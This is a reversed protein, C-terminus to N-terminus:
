ASNFQDGFHDGSNVSGDAMYRIAQNGDDWGCQSKYLWAETDLLPQNWPGRLYWLRQPELRKNINTYYKGQRKYKTRGGKSSFPSGRQTGQTRQWHAPATKHLNSLMLFKHPLFHDGWGIGGGDQCQLFFFLLSFSFDRSSLSLPSHFHQNLVWCESIFIMADPAM